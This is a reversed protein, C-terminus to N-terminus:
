PLNKWGLRKWDRYNDIDYLTTLLKVSKSHLQIRHLSQELVKETSWHIQEFVFTHDGSMGVLYYGGDETPGLVLDYNNLEDFAKSIIKQTLVGCDTGIIILQDYPPLLSKSANAMREGLDSGIQLKKRFLHNPWIDKTDITHSYFVYKDTAIDVDTVVRKTYNSLEIYAQLAQQDGIDAALRTKVKGLEPNKVFILIARRIM